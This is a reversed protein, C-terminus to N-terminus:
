GHAYLNNITRSGEIDDHAIFILLCSNTKMSFRTSFIHTGIGVGLKAGVLKQVQMVIIMMMMM